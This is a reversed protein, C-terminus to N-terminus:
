AAVPPIAGFTLGSAAECLSWLQDRLAPSERTGPFPYEPAPRRDFFFLRKGERARPSVALWAVTDAGEEATRLLRRMVAYFRPLSTRVATTDAWGPHMCCSTISSDRFREALLHTLILQARKANAYARTGDFPGEGTVLSLDLRQLYLGGSAVFVVRADSSTALRDVLLATLAFPGLVHTAFTLEVGDETRQRTHPLVGANHVLVDIRGPLQDVVRRISTLSAMDVVALRVKREGFERALDDRAKEGRAPDRCLMWVEFGRRALERSTALGIGSNAGTVLAVRGDGSFGPDDPEFGRRHFGFGLRSFSFWAWPDTLPRLRRITAALASM